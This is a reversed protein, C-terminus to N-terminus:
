DRPPWDPQFHPETPMDEDTPELGGTPRYSLDAAAPTEATVVSPQPTYGLARLDQEAAEYFRRTSEQIEQLAAYHDPSLPGPLTRDVGLREAVASGVPGGHTALWAAARHTQYRAALVGASVASAVAEPRSRAWQWAGAITPVGWVGRPAVASAATGALAVAPRGVARAAFYLGALAGAVSEVRGVFASALGQVNLLTFIGIALMVIVPVLEKLGLIAMLMKQFDGQAQVIGNAYQTIRDVIAVNVIIGAAATALMAVLASHLVVQLWEFAFNQTSRSALCALSLPILLVAIALALYSGFLLFNYVAIAIIMFLLLLVTVAVAFLTVFIFRFADFLGMGAIGDAAVQIAENLRELAQDFASAGGLADFVAMGIAALARHFSVAVGAVFPLNALITGVIAARILADTVGSPSQHTLSIYLNWLFLFATLLIAVRRTWTTIAPNAAIKEVILTTFMEPNFLTRDIRFPSWWDDQQPQAHAAGPAAALLTAALLVTLLLRM